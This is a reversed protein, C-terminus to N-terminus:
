LLPECVLPRQYTDPELTPYTRRTCSLPPQHTATITAPHAPIATIQQAQIQRVGDDQLLLVRSFPVCQGDTKEGAAPPLLAPRDCDMQPIYTAPVRGGDVTVAVVEGSMCDFSPVPGM